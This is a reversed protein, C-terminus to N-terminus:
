QWPGGDRYKEMLAHAQSQSIKAFRDLFLSKAYLKVIERGDKHINLMKYEFGIDNMEIFTGGCLQM